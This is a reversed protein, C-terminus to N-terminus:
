RGRRKRLDSARHGGPASDCNRVIGRGDRPRFLEGVRDAADRDGAETARAYIALTVQPSSHGMRAQATKVDVGAAILATTALSRLDHFRLGALGARECAPAWTRRRWNSYHLPAGAVTVFLLASPDAATLERRAMLAALVEALWEPVALTRRGAESKPPVLSGDRALQVAVTLRRGLVDVAGVTLGAAEAWRLGLVVGLWMMVARDAGLCEALASLQDADLHPRDVLRVGPLKIDRCPTRAILEAAEAYSFVARVTSYMRGVTSAAHNQSWTKVLRQIDARTVMAVQKAGIAPLVHKGLIGEDRERSRTRKAPDSALWEAAVETLTRRGDRPDRWQGRRRDVRESEEYAEAEKKTNFTRSYEKGNHDRLRVDYVKKGDRKRLRTEIM